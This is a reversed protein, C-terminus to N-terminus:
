GHPVEIFEHTIKGGFKDAASQFAQNLRQAEATVLSLALSLAALKVRPDPARDSVVLTQRIASDAAHCALDVVEDVHEACVVKQVAARIQARPWPAAPLNTLDM